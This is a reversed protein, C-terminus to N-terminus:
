NQNNGTNPNVSGAARGLEQGKGDATPALIKRASPPVEAGTNDRQKDVWLFTNYVTDPKHPVFSVCIHHTVGLESPKIEVSTIWTDKTFGSPTMLTMWEIVNRDPAAPVTYPIGKLVIDPQTTWGNEPWQIAPPADTPDGQVAGGDVWQVITDIDEQRMSRDNSFHGYQPDAFWPPMKRSMVAAKMSKAWPRASEYTLLSMPAINGPRHCSQCNRQLIPLVDKNFTVGGAASVEGSMLLLVAAVSGTLWGQRVM